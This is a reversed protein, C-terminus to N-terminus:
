DQGHDFRQDFCDLDWDRDVGLLGGNSAGSEFGASGDDVVDGRITGIIFHPADGGVGAGTVNQHMHLSRWLSHMERWFIGINYTFHAVKKSIAQFLDLATADFWLLDHEIGADAKAFCYFVIQFQQCSECLKLNMFPGQKQPNRAFRENALEYTTLHLVSAGTREGARDPGNQTSHVTNARM